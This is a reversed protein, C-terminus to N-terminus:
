KLNFENLLINGPLKALLQHSFIYKGIQYAFFDRYPKIKHCFYYTNMM